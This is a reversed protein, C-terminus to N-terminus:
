LLADDIPANLVTMGAAQALAKTGNKTRGPTVADFGAEDVVHWESAQWTNSPTRARTPYSRTVTTRRLWGVSRDGPKYAILWVPGLTNRLQQLASSDVTSYVYNGDEWSQSLFSKWYRGFLQQYNLLAKLQEPTLNM